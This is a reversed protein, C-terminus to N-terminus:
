AQTPPEQISTEVVPSGTTAQDILHQHWREHGEYEPQYVVAACISCIVLSNLDISPSM